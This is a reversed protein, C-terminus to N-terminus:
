PGGSGEGAGGGIPPPIRHFENGVSIFADSVFAIKPLFSALLWAFQQSYIKEDRKLTNATNIVETEIRSERLSISYGIFNGYEFLLRDIM